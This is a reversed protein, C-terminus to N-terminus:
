GSKGSKGSKSYFAYFCPLGCWPSHETAAEVALEVMDEAPISLQRLAYLAGCAILGGSGISAYNDFPRYVSWDNQLMLLQGNVAILITLPCDDDEVPVKQEEFIQLMSPVLVKVAWEVVDREHHPPLVDLFHELVQAPRHAGVAGFGIGNVSFLKGDMFFTEIETSVAADAALWTGDDTEYGIVVSM